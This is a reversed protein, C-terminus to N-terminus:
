HVRRRPPRAALKRSARCIREYMRKFDEFRFAHGAYIPRSISVFKDLGGAAIAALVDPTNSKILAESAAISWRERDIADLNEHKTLDLERDM